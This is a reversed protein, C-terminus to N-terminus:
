DLEYTITVNVTVDQQGSPLPVSKAEAAMNGVAMRDYMIPPVYGAGAESFNKIDGLSVGLQDALTEAKAKAKAIAKARADMQGADPNEVTFDIGGVQNAGAATAATVVDGATDLKRVKVLFNQNAQYGLIRQNGDSWDYVPNLSLNQTTIDKKDIGAKQLADFVANMKDSLIKMAVTTTTQRGTDVGFSAQVIDPSVTTKGEATVTITGPEAPSLQHNEMSKGQLYFAGGIIVVLIPLWVPPRLNITQENAMSLNPFTLPIICWM